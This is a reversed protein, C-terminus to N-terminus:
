HMGKAISGNNWNSRSSKQPWNTFYSYKKQIFKRTGTKLRGHKFGFSFLSETLGESRVEGMRGAPIKQDGIHLLGNLFTGNTLVVALGRITDNTSLIVGSLRDNKIYPSVM